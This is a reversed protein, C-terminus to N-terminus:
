ATREHAKAHLDGSTAGASERNTPQCRPQATLKYRRAPLARRPSPRLSGGIGRNSMVSPTAIGKRGDLVQRCILWFASIRLLALQLTPRPDGSPLADGAKKSVRGLFVSPTGGMRTRAGVHTLGADQPATTPMATIQIRPKVHHPHTTPLVASRIALSRASAATTGRRIGIQTSRNMCCGSALVFSVSSWVVEAHCCLSNTSFPPQAVAGPLLM